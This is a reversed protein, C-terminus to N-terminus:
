SSSPAAQHDCFASQNMTPLLSDIWATVRSDELAEQKLSCLLEQRQVPIDPPGSFGLKVKGGSIKLVTIELAHGVRIQEGLKRTLVLMAIERHNTPNAGDMRVAAPALLGCAM